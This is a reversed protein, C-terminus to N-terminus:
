RGLRREGPIHDLLQYFVQRLVRIHGHSKFTQTLGTLFLRGDCLTPAGSVERGFELIVGAMAAGLNNLIKIQVAHGASEWTAQLYRHVSPLSKM